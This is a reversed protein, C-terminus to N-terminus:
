TKLNARHSKRDGNEAAPRRAANRPDPLAPAGAIRAIRFISAAPTGDKDLAEASCLLFFCCDEDIHTGIQTHLQEIMVDPIEIRDQQRMRMGIM